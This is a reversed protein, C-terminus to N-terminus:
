AEFYAPRDLDALLGPQQPRWGLEDQTRQSSVLNDYAVFPAIWSLQGAAWKASKSAVPVNLRRGIVEAIQRFPVGEEAAGHYVGGAAGKELALRFLAAADLRHVSPWHNTGAGVYASVKKKRAVRILQPVFGTDGDGHVSPPLRLISARVGRTAWGQVAKESIARGAGPSSPDPADAETALRGPAMAMTAFTTVLPRGSGELGKGLADIAGRDAETIVALFRAPIATPAGGLFIRLREGLTMNGFGHIFALHNVGDAADAGKHLSKRDNLAGRHAKIGKAELAKAAADSRALGTVTHGAEILERCVASGIFGTAGTVFVRM